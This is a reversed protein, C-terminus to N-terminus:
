CCAPSGARWTTSQRASRTSSGTATSWTMPPVAREATGAPRPARQRPVDLDPSQALVEAELERLAPGPDVGLEDALKTRAQRLASLADAQRQARYLALVLLRWREERLPAEGVMAEMQPVLMASEGLELRAALLRESAVKRLETLRAIEPQRGPSTPTTPSPPGAVAGDTACSRAPSRPDTAADAQTSCRNSTGHTWPRRPLRVAYGRGESVIVASRSCAASGPQLRRRLHSVYSQLAGATDSPPASAGCRTPWASPRSSRAAPSSCSPWSPVSARAASTSSGGDFSATLEGLMGIRLNGSGDM